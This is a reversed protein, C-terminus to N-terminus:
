YNCDAPHAARVAANCELVVYPLIDEVGATTAEAPLFRTVRQAVGDPMPNSSARQGYLLLRGTGETDSIGPLSRDDVVCLADARTPGRNLIGVPVGNAVADAVFRYASYVQLSTGICLLGACNDPHILQYAADVTAAPVNEGFLVVHPKLVGETASAEEGDIGIESPSSPATAPAARHRGPTCKGCLPVRFRDFPFAAVDMDGDPRLAGIVPPRNGEEGGGVTSTWSVTASTSTGRATQEEASTSVDGLVEAAARTYDVSRAPTGLRRQPVSLPGHLGASAAKAAESSLLDANLTELQQQLERRLTVDGCSTCVVLHINGHLELLRQPWPNLHKEASPGGCHPLASADDVHESKGEGSHGRRHRRRHRDGTSPRNMDEEEDMDRRREARGRHWYIRAAARQHLGDVNQTIVGGAIGSWMLQGIAAHAPNPEVNMMKGYGFYSRSFYRKRAMVSAMFEQRTIPKYGHNYLGVDPSRYDPIGSATSLGAGTLLVISRKTKTQQRPTDTPPLSLLGGREDMTWGLPRCLALHEAGMCATMWSSVLKAAGATSYMAHLFILFTVFFM